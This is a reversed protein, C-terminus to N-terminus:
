VIALPEEDRALYFGKEALAEIVGTEGVVFVPGGQPYQKSLYGATAIASNVIQWPEVPVGFSALREVYQVISRTGNNTAFVVLIGLDKVEAFFRPMDLLPQDSRWLVGDMDLILGKIDAPIGNSM